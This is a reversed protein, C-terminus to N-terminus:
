IIHYKKAMELIAQNNSLRPNERILDMAGLMITQRWGYESAKKLVDGANTPDFQPLTGDEEMEAIKSLINGMLNKKVIVSELNM